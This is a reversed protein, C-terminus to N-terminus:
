CRPPLVGIVNLVVAGRQKLAHAFQVKLADHCLVYVTIVDYFSLARRPELDLISIIRLALSAFFQKFTFPMLFRYRSPM